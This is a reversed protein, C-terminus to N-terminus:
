HINEDHYDSWKKLFYQGFDSIWTTTDVTQEALMASALNDVVKNFRTKSIHGDTRISLKYLNDRKMGSQYDFMHASALMKLLKMEDTEYMLMFTARYELEDLAKQRIELREKIGM